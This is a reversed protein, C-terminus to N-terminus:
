QPKTTGVTGHGVAAAVTQAQELTTWTIAENPGAWQCNEWVESYVKLYLDTTDSYKVVYQNKPM